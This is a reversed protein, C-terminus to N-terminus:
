IDKIITINYLACYEEINEGLDTTIIENDFLYICKKHNPYSLGYMLIQGVAHKWNKSFKVEIIKDETLLDIFGVDTEVEMEGGLKKQLMLLIEKEKEQKWSPKLTELESMYREKNSKQTKWEEIWLSVNVSFM